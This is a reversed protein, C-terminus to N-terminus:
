SQREGLSGIVRLTTSFPVRWAEGDFHIHGGLVGRTEIPLQAWRAYCAPHCWQGSTITPIALDGETFALTFGVFPRMVNFETM